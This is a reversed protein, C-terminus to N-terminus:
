INKKIKDNKWKMEFSRSLLCNFVNSTATIQVTNTMVFRFELTRSKIAGEWILPRFIAM